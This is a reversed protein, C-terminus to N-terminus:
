GYTNEKCIIIYLFGDDDAMENYVQLVTKSPTVLTNGIFIYIAEGAEVTIRQRIRHLFDSITWDQSVVFKYKDLNFEKAAAEDRFGVIIPYRGPYRKMAKTADNHREVFTHDNKYEFYGM